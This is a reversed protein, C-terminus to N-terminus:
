EPLLQIIPLNDFFGKKVFWRYVMHGSADELEDLIPMQKGSEFYCFYSMQMERSKTTISFIANFALKPVRSETLGEKISLYLGGNNLEYRSVWGSEKDAPTEIWVVAKMEDITCGFFHQIIALQGDEEHQNAFIGWSVIVALFVSFLVFKKM